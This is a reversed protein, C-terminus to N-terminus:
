NSAKTRNLWVRQTSLFPFLDLKVLRITVPGKPTFFKFILLNVTLSDETMPHVYYYRFSGLVFYFLAFCFGVARM